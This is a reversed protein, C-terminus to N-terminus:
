TVGGVRTRKKQKQYMSEGPTIQGFANRKPESPSILSKIKSSMNYADKALLKYKAVVANSKISKLAEYKSGGNSM